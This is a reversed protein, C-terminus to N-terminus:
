EFFKPRKKLSKFVGFNGESILQGKTVKGSGTMIAAPVEIDVNATTASSQRRRSQNVGTAGGTAGSAHGRLSTSTMPMLMSSNSASRNMHQKM